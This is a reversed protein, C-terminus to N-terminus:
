KIQQDLNPEFSLPILVPIIKLSSISSKEEGFMVLKKPSRGDGALKMTGPLLGSDDMDGAINMLGSPETALTIPAAPPDFIVEATAQTLVHKRCKQHLRATYM